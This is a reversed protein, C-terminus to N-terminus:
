GESPKFRQKGVKKADIRAMKPRNGFYVTLSLRVDDIYVIVREGMPGKEGELLEAAFSVQRFRKPQPITHWHKNHLVGIGTIGRM